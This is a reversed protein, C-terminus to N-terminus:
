ALDGNSVRRPKAARERAQEREDLLEALRARAVAGPRQDAFAPLHEAAAVLEARDQGRELPPQHLEDGM